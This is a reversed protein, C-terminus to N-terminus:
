VTPAEAGPHRAQWFGQVDATVADFDADTLGYTSVIVMEKGSGEAAVLLGPGLGEVLVGIQQDSTFWVEGPTRGVRWAGSDLISRLPPEASEGASVFVTRRDRGPQRELAFRLQQAFSTWGQTIDDYYAAWESDAPPRPGRVIRVRTREGDPSLEFRDGTEFDDPGTGALELVYPETPSERAHNTYILDVEEDLGDFVWGHWRRIEEPRRLASWVTEIPAAITVEIVPPAETGARTTAETM